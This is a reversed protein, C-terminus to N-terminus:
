KGEMAMTTDADAPKARWELGLSISRWQKALVEWPTGKHEKAIVEFQEQAAKGLPAEKRNKMKPVQVLRLGKDGGEPLSDTRVNGLALNAEHAFALRMNAQAYAFRYTAKWFPSPDKEADAQFKKLEDVTDSLDLCMDSIPIQEKEIAKKLADNVVGGLGDKLVEPPLEGDGQEVLATM